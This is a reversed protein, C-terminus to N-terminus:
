NRGAVKLIMIRKPEKQDFNCPRTPTSAMAVFFVPIFFLLVLAM